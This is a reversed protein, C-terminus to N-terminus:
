SGAEQSYSLWRLKQLNQLLVYRGLQGAYVGDIRVANGFLQDFVNV